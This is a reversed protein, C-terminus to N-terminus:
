QRVTDILLKIRQSGVTVSRIQGELDGAAPEPSGSFSIRATLTVTDHASLPNDPLPAMSDDLRFDAPLRDTTTRLGALPTGDGIVPRAFLFLAEDGKVKDALAADLEITGTITSWAPAHSSDGPPRADLPAGYVQEEAMAKAQRMAGQIEAAYDSEEPLTKLLQRFYYHAKSYEQQQFANIGALELAKADRDNLELAERVLKMPQGSLDRGANVAVAEAYASVVFADKPELAYAKAYAQEADPWRNTGAYSLGLAAWGAADDPKEAVHAQQKAILAERDEPSPGKPQEADTAAPLTASATTPATPDPRGVLLYVGVAAVPLLVALLVAVRRGSGKFLPIAVIAAAAAALAAAIAWFPLSSGITDL